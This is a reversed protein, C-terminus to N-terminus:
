PRSGRELQDLAFRLRFMAADLDRRHEDDLEDSDAVQTILGLANRIHEGVSEPARRDQQRRDTGSRRNETVVVIVRRRDSGSRRDPQERHETSQAAM